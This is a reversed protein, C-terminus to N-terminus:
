NTPAGLGIIDNTVTEQDTNRLDSQISQISEDFREELQKISEVKRPDGTQRRGIKALNYIIGDAFPDEFDDSLNIADTVVNIRVIPALLDANRNIRNITRNTSRIFDDVFKDNTENVGFPNLMSEFVSQLDIDPM